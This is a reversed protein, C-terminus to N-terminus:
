LFLTDRVWFLPLSSKLTKNYDEDLVNNTEVECDDLLELARSFNHLMKNEKTEYKRAFSSLHHGPVPQSLCDSLLARNTVSFRFIQEFSLAWLNRGPFGEGRDNGRLYGGQVEGEALAGVGVVDVDADKSHIPWQSPWTTLPATWKTKRSTVGTTKFKTTNKRWTKARMMTMMTLMTKWHHNWGKFSLFSKRRKM